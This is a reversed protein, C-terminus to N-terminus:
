LRVRRLRLSNSVVSVSSMAMAAGGIMPDLLYGTFPFLLGAAIPISLLNYVFAWFLNQRITKVTARSLKIAAVIHMLDSQMLTIGANEMAIDSGSAMAIGIDAQALAHSDNIGDGVMAVKKGEAQLKKVFNGKDAPMVQAQWHEVGVQKAIKEATQPNDGTMMYVDIGLAKLESIAKASSPRIEDAIAIAAKVTQDESCFIVTQADALFSTAKATLDPHMVAGCDDMLAKNGIRYTKGQYNAQLGRAPINTFAELEIGQQRGFRATIAEALPHASQSEFQSFISSLQKAENEDLWALAVVSPRGRTITGTKDLVITNISFATELASANKVLIGNEAGKGIGVMLATPTALGLACPCAIILVTITTLFAFPLSPTPGFTYWVVFTLLAISMVVPVFIGSIKDALKQIPAKSGQAEEVLRIIQALLTSAGIKEARIRLSGSGNITGAFVKGRKAKEIPMSEGSIMSEDVYSSGSIVIGDVPIKEGPKVMVEDNLAVDQLGIEIEEGNRIVLLTKPQMGALKRIAESSRSKSREELFRGLLIFSIIVTASEYYVHPHIGHNSLVSPFFTNFVSFLFAAGTSLAVLSDMTAMLHRAKNWANVYFEKGAYLLIPLSLGFLLYNEYTFAHMFFMSLIFIPLSFASSVILNRKLESLRKEEIAKLRDARDADNAVLGYGISKLTSQLKDNSMLENDYELWVSQNAYNVAVQFVGEQSKLMSEISIACAACSM